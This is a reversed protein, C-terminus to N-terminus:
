YVSYHVNINCLFAEWIILNLLTIKNKGAIRHIEVHNINKCKAQGSVVSLFLLYVICFYMKYDIQLIQKCEFIYM